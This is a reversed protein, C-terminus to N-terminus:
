RNKEAMELREITGVDHWMGAFHEGTLRKEAITKQFIPLLARKQVVRLYPRFLAPHYIGIGGFTYDNTGNKISIKGDKSLSFDGAPHHAPNDILLLHALSHTPLVLNSVDYDCLVDSNIVIFPSDGLLPLANIIGGATELATPEYSYFIQVGFKQGDGLQTKIQDALYSLNIIIERIGASKLTHITHEILPKGRVLILPKPTNKTLPM